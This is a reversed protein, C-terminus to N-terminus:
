AVIREIQLFKAPADLQADGDSVHLRRIQESRRECTPNHSVCRPTAIRQFCWV